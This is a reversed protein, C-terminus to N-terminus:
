ICPSPSLTKRKQFLALPPIRKFKSDNTPSRNTMVKVTQIVLLESLLIVYIEIHDNLYCRIKFITEKPIPWCLIIKGWTLPGRRMDPRVNYRQVHSYNTENLYEHDEM